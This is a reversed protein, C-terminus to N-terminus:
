KDLWMEIFTKRDNRRLFKQTKEKDKFFPKDVIDISTTSVEETISIPNGKEVVKKINKILRMREETETQIDKFEDQSLKEYEGDSLIIVRDEDDLRIAYTAKGQILGISPIDKTIVIIDGANAMGAFLDMTIKYYGKDITPTNNKEEWLLYQNNVIKIDEEKVIFRSTLLRWLHLILNSNLGPYFQIQRKLEWAVRNISSFEDKDKQKKLEGKKKLENGKDDILGLKFALQDKWPIIFAKIFKVTYFLEMTDNKPTKFAGFNFGKYIQPYSSAYPITSFSVKTATTM